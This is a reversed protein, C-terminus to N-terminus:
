MADKRSFEYEQLWGVFEKIRSDQYFIVVNTRDTSLNVEHDSTKAEVVKQTPGYM